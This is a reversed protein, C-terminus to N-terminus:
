LRTTILRVIVLNNSIFSYKLLLSFSSYFLYCINCFYNKNYLFTTHFFFEFLQLNKHLLDHQLLVTIVKFLSHKNNRQGVWLTLQPLTFNTDLTRALLRRYLPHCDVMLQIQGGSITM